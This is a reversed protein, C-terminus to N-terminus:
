NFNRRHLDCENCLLQNLNCLNLHRTHILTGRHDDIINLYPTETRLGLRFQIQNIGQLPGGGYSNDALPIAEAVGQIAPAADAARQAIMVESPEIAGHAPGNGVGCEM